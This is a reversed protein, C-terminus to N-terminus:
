RQRQRQNLCKAERLPYEELFSKYICDGMKRVFFLSSRFVYAVVLGSKSHNPPKPSPRPHERHRGSKKQLQTANMM